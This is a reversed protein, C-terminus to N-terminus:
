ENCLNGPTVGNNCGVLLDAHRGMVAEVDGQCAFEAIENQPEDGRASILAGALDDAGGQAQEFTDLRLRDERM